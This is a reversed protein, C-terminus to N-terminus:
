FDENWEKRSYPRSLYQIWLYHTAINEEYIISFIFSISCMLWKTWIPAICSKWKRIWYCWNSLFDYNSYTWRACDRTAYPLPIHICEEFVTCHVDLHKLVKRLRFHSFFNVTFRVFVSFKWSYVLHSNLRMSFQKKEQFIVM